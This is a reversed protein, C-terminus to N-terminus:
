RYEADEDREKVLKVIMANAKNLRAHLDAMTADREKVKNSANAYWGRYQIAEEVAKDRHMAMAALDGSFLSKELVKAELAALSIAETLKYFQTM